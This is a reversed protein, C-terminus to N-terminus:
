QVVQRDKQDALWAANVSQQPDDFILGAYERMWLDDPSPPWFIGRRLDALLRRILREADSQWAASSIAEAFGTEEKRQTKEDESGASKREEM